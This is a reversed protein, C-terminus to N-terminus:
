EELKLESLKRCSNERMWTLMEENIRRFAEHRFAVASGVGVARAGAMIMQLADRGTTVGGTGIVPIEVARAVEYVCRLAIPFLAPGSVGGIKNTLVPRRAELDIAMGKITNIACIADAGAAEVARAVSAIDSVNPTLKVSLPTRIASKV